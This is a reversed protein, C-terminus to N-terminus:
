FFGAASRLESKPALAPSHDFGDRLGGENSTQRKGITSLAAHYDDYANGPRIQRGAQLQM